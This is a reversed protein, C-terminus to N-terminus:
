AVLYAAARRNSAGDTVEVKAPPSNSAVYTGKGVHSTFPLAILIGGANNYELVHCGGHQVAQGHRSSTASYSHICRM